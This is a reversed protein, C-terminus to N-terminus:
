CSFSAKQEPLHTLLRLFCLSFNCVWIGWLAPFSSKFLKRETGNQSVYLSQTTRITTLFRWKNFRKMFEVVIMWFLKYKMIYIQTPLRITFLCPSLKLQTKILISRYWFSEIVLRYVMLVFHVLAAKSFLKECQWVFKITLKQQNSM